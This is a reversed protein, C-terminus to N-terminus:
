DTEGRIAGMSYANDVTTLKAVNLHCNPCILEDTNRDYLMDDAIEFNTMLKKGCKCVYDNDYISKRWIFANKM